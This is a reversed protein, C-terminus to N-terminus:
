KFFLGLDAMFEGRESTGLPPADVSGRVLSKVGTHGGLLGNEVSESPYKFAREEKIECVSQIYTAIQNASDSGLGLVESVVLRTKVTPKTIARKLFPISAEGSLDNVQVSPSSIM